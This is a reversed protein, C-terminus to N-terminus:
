PESANLTLTPVYCSTQQDYDYVLVPPDVHKVSRGFEVCVPAPAAAFLHVTREHGHADRLHALLRRLEYGFVELRARSRLFDYGPAAARIEYVLPEELAATVKSRAVRGSVSLVVAVPADDRAAALEADDPRLTSYFEASPQEDAGWRWDQTGRHRQYLDVREIDGLAHGFYVLLPIPALAFVSLNRVRRKGSRQHVLGRVNETVTDTLVSWYGPNTPKVRLGCLDIRMAEEEAPYNPLIARFAQTEDINFAREGICAQLLLVHTQAEPTIETLMRIRAEHERKFERLLEEPYEDVHAKDDIIKGHVRCTLMLNAIDTALKPSRAPDGRPGDPSFAVIHSIASVNSRKQTLEDKYQLKNCGRFECRGAARAWLERQTSEPISPRGGARRRRTPVAPAPVRDANAPARSTSRPLRTM